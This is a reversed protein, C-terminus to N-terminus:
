VSTNQFLKRLSKALAVSVGEAGVRPQAVSSLIRNNPKKCKGALTSKITQTCESSLWHSLWPRGCSEFRCSLMATRYAEIKAFFYPLRKKQLYWVNTRQKFARVFRVLTGYWVLVNRLSTELKSVASGVTKTNTCHM